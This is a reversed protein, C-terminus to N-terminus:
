FPFEDGETEFLPTGGDDCRINSFVKHTCQPCKAKLYQKKEERENTDLFYNYKYYEHKPKCEDKRAIFECGCFACEFLYTQLGAKGEKLIEM